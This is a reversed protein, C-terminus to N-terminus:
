ATIVRATIYYTFFLGSIIFGGLQLDLYLAVSIVFVMIAIMLITALTAALRAYYLTNEIFM